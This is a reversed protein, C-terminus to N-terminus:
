RPPLNDRYIPFPQTVKFGRNFASSSGSIVRLEVVLLWYVLENTIPTHCSSQTPFPRGLAIRVLSPDTYVHIRFLNSVFQPFDTDWELCDGTPFGDKSVM